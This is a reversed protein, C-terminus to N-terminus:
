PDLAADCRHTTPLRGHIRPSKQIARNREAHDGGRAPRGATCEASCLFHVRQAMHAGFCGEGPYGGRSELGVVGITASDFGEHQLLDVLGAGTCGVRWDEIWSTGGRSINEMNRVKWFATWTLYIPEGELPFVVIGEVYDNSLYGEAKERGSLGAVILCDLGRAKMLERVLKWRRDREQLSLTPKMKEEM